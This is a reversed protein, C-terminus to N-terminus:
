LFIVYNTILTSSLILSLLLCFNMIIIFQFNDSEFIKYNYHNFRKIFTDIGGLFMFELAIM